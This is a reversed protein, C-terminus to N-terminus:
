EESDQKGSAHKKLHVQIAMLAAPTIGSIRSAQGLSLPRVRSLKERVERSLGYISHYDMEEPLRITEMKKLKDVQREQRSIYGEYKIRTEVEEAISEETGDLAQDFLSLHEFFVENRRLLQALSISNRIPASGLDKLKDIVRPEPRIKCEHIYCLLREVHGKKKRFQGFVDNPVLGLRYGLERLRFDANDERLLLRYEARSTFM